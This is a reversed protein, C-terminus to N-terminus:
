PLRSPRRRSLRAMRGGQQSRHRRSSAHDLLLQSGARRSRHRRDGQREPRRDERHRLRPGRVPAHLRWPHRRRDQRRLRRGAAEALAVGHRHRRRGQGHRHSRAASGDLRRIDTGGKLTIDGTATKLRAWEAIGDIVINGDMSEARLEKTNGHVTISGGVVNADVGGTVGTVEIDASGTKVWVRAERPVRLVVSGDRVALDNPSEIYGKMGRAAGTPAGSMLEVRSGKAVVGSLDVSDKDWGIVKVTAVAAMLRVSVTPSAGHGLSVKQQASIALPCCALLTM